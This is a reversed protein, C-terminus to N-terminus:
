INLRSNLLQEAEFFLYRFSVDFDEVADTPEMDLDIHNISTTFCGRLTYSKITTGNRDHWYFRWSSLWLNVLGENDSM